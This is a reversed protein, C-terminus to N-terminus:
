HAALHISGLAGGHKETFWIKGGPGAAVDIVNSYQRPDVENGTGDRAMFGLYGDAFWIQGDAGAAIGAPPSGSPVPFETVSHPSAALMRGIAKRGSDAFWINGDAGVTLDGPASTKDATPARLGFVHYESVKSPDKPSFAGIASRGADSFWMKDGPGSIIAAPVSGDLPLPYESAQGSVTIRGISGTAPDTFWLNGDPGAAIAVPVSYYGVLFRTLTGSPTIRDIYGDSETFWLNGDPGSTIAGLDATTPVKFFTVTGSAPTFRGVQGYTGFKAAGQFETFWITGGPGITLAAIKTTPDDVQWQRIAYARTESTKFHVLLNATGVFVNGKKDAALSGMRRGSTDAFETVVGSETIRSLNGRWLVWVNGDSALTLDDGASPSSPNGALPKTWTRGTSVNVWGAGGPWAFWVKHGKKDAIIRNPSEGAPITVPYRKVAGSSPTLRGVAASSDVYWLHRDPGVVVGNVPGSGPLTFSKVTTAHPDLRALAEHVRSGTKWSEGIWVDGKADLAIGGLGFGTIGSAGSDPLTFQTVANTKWDIRAVQNLGTEVVWINGGADVALSTPGATLRRGNRVVNTPLQIVRVTPNASAPNIVEDVTSDAFDSSVQREPVSKSSYQGPPGGSQAPAVGPANSEEPGNDIWEYDPIPFSGGGPFPMMRTGMPIAAYRQYPKIRHSPQTPDDALHNVLDGILFIVFLVTALCGGGQGREGHPDRHRTKM